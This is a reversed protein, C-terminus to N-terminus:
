GELSGALSFTHLKQFVRLLGTNVIELAVERDDTYRMCMRMMTPFYRRYLIEQHSRNNQVCGQVLERETYQDSKMM